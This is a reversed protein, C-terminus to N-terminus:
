RGDDLGLDGRGLVVWDDADNILHVGNLEPTKRLVEVIAELSMGGYRIGPRQRGTYVQLLADMGAAASTLFLPSSGDAGIKMAVYLERGRAADVIRDYRQPDLVARTIRQELTAGAAPEAAPRQDAVALHSHHIASTREPAEALYVQLEAYINPEDDAIVVEVRDLPLDYYVGPDTIIRAVRGRLGTDALGIPRHGAPVAPGARRDSPPVYFEEAPIERGSRTEVIQIGRGDRVIQLQSGVPFNWIGILTALAAGAKPIFEIHTM